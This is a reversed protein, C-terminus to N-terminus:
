ALHVPTQCSVLQHSVVQSPANQIGGVYVGDPMSSLNSLELSAVGDIIVLQSASAEQLPHQRVADEAGNGNAIQLVYM